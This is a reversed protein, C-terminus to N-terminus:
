DTQNTGTQIVTIQTPQHTEFDLELSNNSSSAFPSRSSYFSAATIAPNRRHLPARVRSLTKVIFPLFPTV